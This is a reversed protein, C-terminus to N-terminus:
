CRHTFHSHLFLLFNLNNLLLNFGNLPSFHLTHFYLIRISNLSSSTISGISSFSGSTFLSSYLFGVSSSFAYYNLIQWIWKSCEHLNNRLKLYKSSHLNCSSYIALWFWSLLNLLHETRFIHIFIRFVINIPFFLYFLSFYTLPFYYISVRYFFSYITMM